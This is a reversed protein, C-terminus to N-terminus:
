GRIDGHVYGYAELKILGHLVREVADLIEKTFKTTREQYSDFYIRFNTEFYDM